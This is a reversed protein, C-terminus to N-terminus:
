AQFPPATASVTGRARARRRQGGLTAVWEEGLTFFIGEGYLEIAPLWDSEGAVDPQVLDGGARTFGKLVMVEKLKNVAILRSVAQVARQASRTGFRRGLAKWGDTHHETVFDEGEALDPIEEILARYEDIMVDSEALTRGYLPYGKDIETLAHEIEGTDCRYESALQRLAGRRALAPGRM